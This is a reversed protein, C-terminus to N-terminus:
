LGKMSRTKEPAFVTGEDNCVRFFSHVADPRGGAHAWRTKFVPILEISLQNCLGGNSLVAAIVLLFREKTRQVIRMAQETGGRGFSEIQRELGFRGAVFIVGPFEAEATQQSAAQGFSSGSEDFDSG